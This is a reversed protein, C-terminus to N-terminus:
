SLLRELTWELADMEGVAALKWERRQGHIGDPSYNAHHRECLPVTLFHGARQAAGQGERIHHVQAYVHGYGRVHCLYCGLSAVKDLHRKEAKTTM